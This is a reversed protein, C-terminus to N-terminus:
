LPGLRTMTDWNMNWKKQRLHACDPAFDWMCFAILSGSHLKMQKM